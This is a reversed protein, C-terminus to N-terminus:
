LIKLLVKTDYYESTGIRYMIIRHWGDEQSRTASSSKDHSNRNDPGDDVNVTSPNPISLDDELVAELDPFKTLKLRHRLQDKHVRKERGGELVVSYMVQDIQKAITGPLWKSGSGFNLVFVTNSTLFM